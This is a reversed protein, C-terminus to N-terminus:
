LNRVKKKRNRTSSTLHLYLNDRRLRLILENIQATIQQRYTNPMSFFRMRLIWPLANWTKFFYENFYLYFLKFIDFHCWVTLLLYFFCSFSEARRRLRFSKDQFICFNLRIKQATHSAISHSPHPYSSQHYSNLTQLPLELLPFTSSYSPSILVIM